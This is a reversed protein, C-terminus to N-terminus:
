ADGVTRRTIFRPEEDLHVTVRVVSDGEHNAWRCANPMSAYIMRHNHRNMRVKGERDVVAFLTLPKM